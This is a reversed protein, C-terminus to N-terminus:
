SEIVDIQIVGEDYIRVAGLNWMSAIQTSYSLDTRIDISSRMPGKIRKIAGKVWGPLSRTTSVKPLRKIKVFKFGMFTDIEGNTLAKVSNYDASKVETTNLLDTLQAATVCLVRPNGDELDADELIQNAAILKALTLGTGGAAIKQGAPLASATAGAEGTMADGLAASWAIDDADRHYANTHSVVLDSTPLVLPALNQADDRDLLNALEYSQRYAWRADMSPDTIITPGKRETRKHSSQSGIRDFRKREGSFNIDEVFADLRGRTQQTRQIWNTSFETSYHEPITDAM